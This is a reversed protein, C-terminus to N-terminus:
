CIRLFSQNRGSTEFHLYSGEKLNIKGERASKVETGKLELGCQFRELIDYNRQVIPNVAITSGPGKYRPKKKSTMNLFLINCRNHFVKSWSIVSSHRHNSWFRLCQFCCPMELCDGGMKM